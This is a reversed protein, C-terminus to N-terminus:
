KSKSGKPEMSGGLDKPARARPAGDRGVRDCDYTTVHPLERQVTIDKDGENFVSRSFFVPERFTVRIKEDDPIGAGRTFSVTMGKTVPLSLPDAAVGDPGWNLVIVHDAM